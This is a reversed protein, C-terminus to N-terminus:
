VSCLKLTRLEPMTPCLAMSIKCLTELAWARHSYIVVFRVKARKRDRIENGKKKSVNERFDLFPETAKIVYAKGIKGHPLLGVVAQQQAAFSDHVILLFQSLPFISAVRSEIADRESYDQLLNELEQARANPISFM